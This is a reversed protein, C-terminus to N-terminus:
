ARAMPRVEHRRRGNREPPRPSACKGPARASCSASVCPGRQPLAAESPHSEDSTAPDGPSPLPGGGLRVDPEAPEREPRHGHRPPEEKELLDSVTPKTLNDGRMIRDVDNSDLTEYQM